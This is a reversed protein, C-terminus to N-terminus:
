AHVCFFEFIKDMFTKNTIRRTDYDYLPDYQRPPAYMNPQLKKPAQKQPKQPDHYNNVIKSTKLTTPREDIDLDYHGTVYKFIDRSETNNVVMENAVRLKRHDYFEFLRKEVHRSDKVRVIYADFKSYYTKYRKWLAVIERNHLGVKATDSDHNKIFYVFQYGKQNYVGYKWSKSDRNLMLM